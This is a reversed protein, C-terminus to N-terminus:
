NALQPKVSARNGNADLIYADAVKSPESEVARAKECRGTSMLVLLVAALCLALKFSWASPRTIMQIQRGRGDRGPVEPM